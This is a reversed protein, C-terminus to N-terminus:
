FHRSVGRLTRHAQQLLAPEAELIELAQKLGAIEASRRKVREEYTDPKVICMDELKALYEDVANLEIQVGSHDSSAESVAKELGILEKTKYEVDKAKIEKEIANEKTEKDYAVAASEETAVMEALSKSFDSEVVELRGVIGHADGEAADHAKEDQAYYDRIVKLAIKVADIGQEMDAKNKAYATQEDQRIKDMEAQSKTLEAVAKKLAAVQQKLHTSRATMQDIKASLEDADSTLEAKKEQSQSTEKDCYAKHSADAGAESELRDIMDGILGKVKAFPDAVEADSSRLASEMRSALQALAISRDNRALDRVIRVAQFKTLDARDALQLFSVQSVGYTIFEAGGTAEAIVKKAEALANLENTRSATAAEYDQAKTMCDLHLDELTKTDEALTKSMVDLDGEAIAKKESSAALDNKASASEKKAFKIQDELSQKLLQFNHMSSTEKKRAAAIQGQAKDLLDELTDIIGDSHGEYVAAAPAGLEESGDESAHASQVFARLKAADASSLASASVLAQFASLVGAASSLQAMSAGGKQMERELISIARELTGIVETLEAQESAFDAAEKERIETAAKLDDEDTAVSESLEGIKETLSAVTSSEQGILAKLEEVDSKGTKIDFALNKSRDECWEEYEAYAAKAAAGEATVKQELGTLLDLVKSVPTTGHALARLSALILSSALVKM